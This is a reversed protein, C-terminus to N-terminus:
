SKNVQNKLKGPLAELLTGPELLLVHMGLSKAAETNIQMDDIFLTEQPILGNEELVVRYIEPDPKRLGMQHSYYNKEFLEYFSYGNDNQFMRHFLERHIENTNSLLFTRYSKKLTELYRIREVPMDIIMATWANDISLDSVHNGIIQRINNRFEEPTSAGKEVKHLINVQLEEAEKEPVRDLGMKRFAEITLQPNIDLIVGGLDFILNKIQKM